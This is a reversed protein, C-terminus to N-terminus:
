RVCIVSLAATDKYESMVGISFSVAWVNADEDPSSRTSTWCKDTVLNPFAKEDAAPESRRVDVITQLEAVTPLRWGKSSGIRSQDCYAKAEEFTRPVSDLRRQWVLGTRLDKVTEDSIEYQGTPAAAMLVGSSLVLGCLALTWVRRM